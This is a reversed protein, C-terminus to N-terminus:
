RDDAAVRGVDDHQTRRRLEVSDRCGAGPDCPTGFGLWQCAKETLLLVPAQGTHIHSHGACGDATDVPRVAASRLHMGVVGPQGFAKGIDCTEIKLGVLIHVELVRETFPRALDGADKPAVADPHADKTRCVTYPGIRQADHRWAVVLAVSEGGCDCIHDIFAGCGSRASAPTLRAAAPAM